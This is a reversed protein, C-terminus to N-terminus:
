AEQETPVRGQPTLTNIAEPLTKSLRELLDERSLGTQRTLAEIADPGLTRELESAEFPENDGDNIWSQAKAGNGAQNFHDLLGGLGGSLM